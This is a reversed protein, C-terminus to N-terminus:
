TKKIFYITMKKYKRIAIYVIFIKIEINLVM